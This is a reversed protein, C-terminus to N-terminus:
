HHPPSGTDSPSDHWSQLVTWVEREVQVGDPFKANFNGRLQPAAEAFYMDLTAQSMCEYRARYRGGSSSTLSAGLFFGTALLEPIHTRTMFLEYKNRLSDAVVTTVEYTVRESRQGTNAPGSIRLKAPQDM